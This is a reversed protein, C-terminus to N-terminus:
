QNCSRLFYFLIFFCVFYSCFLNRCYIGKTQLVVISPFCRAIIAAVVAIFIEVEIPFSVLREWWSVLADIFNHM